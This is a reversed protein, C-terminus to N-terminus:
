RHLRNEDRPVLAALHEARAQGEPAPGAADEIERGAVLGVRDIVLRLDALDKPVGDPPGVIGAGRPLATRLRGVPRGLRRGFLELAAPRAEVLVPLLTVCSASGREARRSPLCPPAAHM